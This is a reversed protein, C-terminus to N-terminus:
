VGPHSGRARHEGTRSARPDSAEEFRRTSRRGSIPMRLAGTSDAFLTTRLATIMPAQAATLAGVPARSMARSPSSSEGVARCSRRTAESSSTIARRASASTVATNRGMWSLAHCSGGSPHSNRCTPIPTPRPNSTQTTTRLARLGLSSTAM